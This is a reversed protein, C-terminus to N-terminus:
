IKPSEPKDLVPTIKITDTEIGIQNEPTTINAPLTAESEKIEPNIGADENSQPMNINEPIDDAMQIKAEPLTSKTDPEVTLPEKNDKQMEEEQKSFSEMKEALNDIMPMGTEPITIKNEPNSVNDSELPLQNKKKKRIFLVSAAIIIVAFVIGLIMYITSNSFNLQSLFKNNISDEADSTNIETKTLNEEASEDENLEASKEINKSDDEEVADELNNTKVAQTQVPKRTVRAPKSDQTEDVSEETSTKINEGEQTNTEVFGQAYIINANLISILVFIQIIQKRFNM